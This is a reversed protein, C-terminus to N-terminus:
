HSGCKLIINPYQNLLEENRSSIKNERKSNKQDRFFYKAYCGKIYRKYKSRDKRSQPLTILNYVLALIRKKLEEVPRSKYITKMDRYMKRVALISNHKRLVLVGM